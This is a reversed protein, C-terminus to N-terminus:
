NESSLEVKFIATQQKIFICMKRVGTNGRDSTVKNFIYNMFQQSGHSFFISNFVM